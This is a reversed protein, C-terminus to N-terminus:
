LLETALLFLFPSIPCGQRVGRYINFKKSTDFNGIVSSNIGTYFMTVTEIFAKWFGFLELTRFICKHEITDFAKHFDLFLILGDSHILDPYDLLDLVLRINNSIHRGKMFGPQSESIINGLGYSLRKAYVSALIKYDLTLLSIPRWNDIVLLDKDPKPILSIIGQKMTATMDGQSICEEYMNYLPLKIFEWFHLYLEVSLGDIGPSKGKKMKHLAQKIEEISLPSDCIQSYELDIVKINHKVLDICKGSNNYNFNSTYLNSYFKAVFDSIGKLDKSIVGDINLTSLTKRQGNKKELAFFNSSNREGEELWKAHSRTYASKAM